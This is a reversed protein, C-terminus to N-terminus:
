KAKRIRPDLFQHIWDAMLNASVVMLTIIVFIGQILPYDRSTIADYILTGMGNLSFVIEVFLAGSFLFGFDLALLSIVPLIANKLVHKFLLRKGSIGKAKGYIVYPKNKEQLVCGRTIIFNRSFSILTLVSVPLIHHQIIDILSGNQYFGKIPFLNLKVAFLTMILIAMFFPPISFFLINLQTFIRSSPKRNKWGALAGSYIGLLSGIIISSLLLILTWPLRTLIIGSVKKRLHYSYGLDLHLIELFYKFFQVYIPKDLGLEKKLEIVTQPDVVADEGLLFIMPDGPMARPIIFNLVLIVLLTLLTRITKQKINKM